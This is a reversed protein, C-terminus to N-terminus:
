GEREERKLKGEAVCYPCVEGYIIRGCLRCEHAVFSIPIRSFFRQSIVYGFAVIVFLALMWGRPGFDGLFIAVLTTACAVSLIILDRWRRKQEISRRQAEEVELGFRYRLLERKERAVFEAQPADVARLLRECSDLIRYADDFDFEEQHAWRNRFERLESVLSRHFGGLRHRFVSNWQDWMVTLVAHADWVMNQEDANAQGRGERFSSQVAHFWREKYITKLSDEVIPKLGSSLADLAQAVRERM